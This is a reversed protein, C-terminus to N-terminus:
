WSRYVQIHALSGLITNRAVWVSTATGTGSWDDSIQGQADYGVAILAQETTYVNATHRAMWRLKNEGSETQVFPAFQSLLKLNPFTKAVYLLYLKSVQIALADSEVNSITGLERMWVSDGQMSSQTTSGSLYISSNDDKVIYNGSYDNAM